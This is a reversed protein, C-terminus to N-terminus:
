QVGVSIEEDEKENISAELAKIQNKLLLIEKEQEKIKRRLDLIQNGHREYYDNNEYKKGLSGAANAERWRAGAREIRKSGLIRVDFGADSFIAMPRKGSFYEKVFLLKFEETYTIRNGNVDQVYPNSKLIRIEDTTLKGRGM